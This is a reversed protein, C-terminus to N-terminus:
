HRESLKRAEPVTQWHLLLLHPFCPNVTILCRVNIKKVGGRVHGTWFPKPLINQLTLIRSIRGTGLHSKTVCLEAFAVVNFDIISLNVTQFLFFCCHFFLCIFFCIIVLFKKRDVATKWEDLWVRLLEDFIAHDHFQLSPSSIASVVGWWKSHGRDLTKEWGTQKTKMASFVLLALYKYIEMTSSLLTDAHFYRTKVELSVRVNKFARAAEQVCSYPECPM